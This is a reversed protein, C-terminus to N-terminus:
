DSNLSVSEFGGRGRMPNLQVGGREARDFTVEEERESVDLQTDFDGSIVRNSGTPRNLSIEDLSAQTAKNRMFFWLALGMSLFVLVLLVATNSNVKEVVREVITAECTVAPGYAPMLKINNDAGIFRRFLELAAAPQTEPVMHGAGRVTRFSFSGKGSKGQDNQLHNVNYKVAYGGTQSGYLTSPELDSYTWPHWPELPSYGMNETWAENDTYPVCADVDGNYILVQINGILRPYLDRPLNERTSNYTWKPNRNCVNWCFSKIGGLSEYHQNMWISTYYAGLCEAPGTLNRKSQTFYEHGFADDSALASSATVARHSLADLVASPDQDKVSEVNRYKARLKRLGAALRTGRQGNSKADVDGVRGAMNPEVDAQLDRGMSKATMYTKPEKTEACHDRMDCNGMVDYVNIHGLLDMADTLSDMCSNSLTFNHKAAWGAPQTSNVPMNLCKNWDCELDIQKRLDNNFFSLGQLFKYEYYLGDCSNGEYMGCIGIQNGTCGNGVAIGKLAPGIWTGVKVRDLIAEALTPVYIGAYSEGSIFFPNSKLSPFLTFFHNLAESSEKATRDDSNDYDGTLSYSLGVGVPAEIFLM